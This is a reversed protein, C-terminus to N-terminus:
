SEAKMYCKYGGLSGVDRWNKWTAIFWDHHLSGDKAFLDKGTALPFFFVHEGGSTSQLKVKLKSDAGYTQQFFENLQDVYTLQAISFHTNSLQHVFVESLREETLFKSVGRLEVNSGLSLWQTGGPAITIPTNNNRDPGLTCGGGKAGSKAVALTMADQVSLSGAILTVPSDSYNRIQISLAADDQNSTLSPHRFVATLRGQIAVLPEDNPTVEKVLSLVGGVNSFFGIISAILAFSLSAYKVAKSNWIRGM